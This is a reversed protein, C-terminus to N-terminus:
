NYFISRQNDRFSPRSRQWKTGTEGHGKRWSGLGAHTAGTDTVYNRSNIAVKSNVRKRWYLLSELAREHFHGYNYRQVMNRISTMQFTFNKQRLWIERWYIQCDKELSGCRRLSHWKALPCMQKATCDGVMLSPTGNCFFLFFLFLRPFSSSPIM